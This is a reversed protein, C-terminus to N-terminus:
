LHHIVKNKLRLAYLDDTKSVIQLKDGCIEEFYSLIMVFSATFGGVSDDKSWLSTIRGFCAHKRKGMSPLKIYQYKWSLAFHIGDICLVKLLWDANFEIQM